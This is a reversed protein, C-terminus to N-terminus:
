ELAEIAAQAAAEPTRQERIVLSVAEQLLPGLALIIDESPILRASLLVDNLVARRNGQWTELAKPRLPLYGASATWAGLFESEVLYEALEVALAQQSSTSGALSWVWGDGLTFNTGDLGPLPSAISDAPNDSLYQSAWTIVMNSHHDRYAQWSQLDTKYQAITYPFMGKERGQQFFKLVEILKQMDLTAQNQDDVVRGGMSLYLCLGLVAQPDAAPFAVTRGKEQISVWDLKQFGPAAPRDVLILADGAFPLGYIAEQVRALGAAFDYWDPDDMITTLGNFPHLLGKLVASEMDSRSLAVLDPLAGPAASGSAVLSGLLSASGTAAKIRVELTLGPHLAVFEDLRAQLLTGSPTNAAPDFQPPLWLRLRPAALPAAGDTPAATPIATAVLTPQAAPTQPTGRMCGALLALLLALVLTIRMVQKKVIHVGRIGGPIDPIFFSKGQKSWMTPKVTSRNGKPHLFFLTM